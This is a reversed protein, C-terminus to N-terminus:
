QAFGERARGPAAPTGRSLRAAVLSAELQAAYGELSHRGEVDDRARLALREALGQECIMRELQAALRAADGAPFTLSNIGDRVLEAHGGRDSSVVPTGSAMAELQTLGFAEEPLSPFVFVDHERYLRPMEAHAVKGLFDIRAPGRRAQERLSEGAAGEGAISVAIPLRRALLGAAEILTEVGKMAYLQGAFLLRPPKGVVGLRDKRPFRALPIGQHQVAAERAPVGAALLRLKLDLSICTARSLDLGALTTSRAVTRDLAWAALKRPPWGFAAPRYSAIADDNFSYLSPIGADQLARAPGVTLRRLSYVLAVDPSFAAIRARTRDRNRRGVAWRAARLVRGPQSFPQYLELERHVIPGGSLGTPAEGRSPAGGPPLGHDSTLVEVVHGRRCLDAAVQACLIEAGGLLHPPYLNSVVLVRM